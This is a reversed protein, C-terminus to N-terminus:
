LTEIETKKLEAPREPVRKFPDYKYKRCSNDKDVPGHYYCLMDGGATKDAWACYECRKECRKETLM